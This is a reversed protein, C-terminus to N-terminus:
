GFDHFDEHLSEIAKLRARGKDGSQSMLSVSLFHLLSMAGAYRDFVDNGRVASLLTWTAKPQPRASMDTIYLVKAGADAATALTHSVQPPRRRLGIVVMVDQANMDAVYEGLTEGAGPFLHVDPRAQMFQWRLYQALFHSNRYGFVFVRRAQWLASVIENITAVNLSEMTLSITKMDQEIHSQIRGGFGTQDPKRPMLYLPSGWNQANRAARRAEEFNSFGLRRILRTVAAKSGGALEALETASYAAIEGPFDLILDAIKRESSPLAEYHDRVRSELSAPLPTRPAEDVTKAPPM